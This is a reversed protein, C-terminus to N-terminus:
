FCTEGLVFHIEESYMLWVLQSFPQYEYSNAWMLLNLIIIIYGCGGKEQIIRGRMAMGEWECCVIM